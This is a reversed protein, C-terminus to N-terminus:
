IIAPNKPNSHATNEGGGSGGVTEEWESLSWKWPATLAGERLREEKVRPKKGKQDM